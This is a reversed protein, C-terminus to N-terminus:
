GASFQGAWPLSEGEPIKRCAIQRGDLGAREIAREWGEWAEPASRLCARVGSEWVAKLIGAGSEGARNLCTRAFARQPPERRVRMKRDPLNSVFLEQRRSLEEPALQEEREFPTGPAPAFCDLHARVRLRGRSDKRAAHRFCEKLAVALDASQKIEEEDEGPLGIIFRLSLGVFGFRGARQAAGVLRPSEDVAGALARLRQSGSVPYLSVWEQGTEFLADAQDEALREFALSEARLAVRMSNLESALGELIEVFCSHPRLDGTTLELEAYGTEFILRAGAEILNEVGRERVPGRSAALASAAGGRRMELSARDPELHAFPVVPKCPFPASDLDLARALGGSTRRALKGPAEGGLGGVFFSGDAALIEMIGDKESAARIVAQVLPEVEGVGIADSFEVLPQQSAADTLLCILRPGQARRDRACIPVGGCDLCALMNPALTIDPILALILDFERLPTGSEMGVLPLGAGKLREEMDPGPCFLRDAALGPSENILQYAINFDPRAAAAEYLDPFLLAIRTRAQDLDKRRANWEGDIYRSPKEVSPLLRVFEEPFM